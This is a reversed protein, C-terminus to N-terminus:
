EKSGKGGSRAPIVVFQMRNAAAAQDAASKAERNQEHFAESEELSAARARNEIIQRAATLRAVETMVGAKGGDPTELSVVVVFPGPLEREVERLKKYYARLDM